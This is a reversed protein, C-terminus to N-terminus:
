ILRFGAYSLDGASIMEACGCGCGCGGMVGIDSWQVSCVCVWVCRYMGGCVSVYGWVCVCCVVGVGM